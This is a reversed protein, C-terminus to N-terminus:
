PGEIVQALRASSPHGSLGDNPTVAVILVAHRMWAQPTPGVILQVRAVRGLALRGEATGALGVFADIVSLAADAMLPASKADAELADFSVSHRSVHGCRVSAIILRQFLATPGIPTLHLPSASGDLTAASGMPRRSTFATVGGLKTVRLLIDGIDDKFLIDGRPGRSPSVVWVEPDDDFKLLFPHHSRDLVFEGGEDISFRAVQPAGHLQDERGLSLANKVWAPTFSIGAAGMCGVAGAALALARLGLVIRPPVAM